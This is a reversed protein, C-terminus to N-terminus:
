AEFSKEKKLYIWPFYSKFHKMQVICHFESCSKVFSNSNFSNCFFFIYRFILMNVYICLTLFLYMSSFHKKKKVNHCAYFDHMFGALLHKIGNKWEVEYQINLIVPSCYLKHWRYNLIPYSNYLNSKDGPLVLCSNTMIIIFVIVTVFM